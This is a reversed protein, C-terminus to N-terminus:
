FTKKHKIPDRASIIQQSIPIYKSLRNSSKRSNPKLDNHVLYRQTKSVQNTMVLYKKLDDSEAIFFQNKSNESM